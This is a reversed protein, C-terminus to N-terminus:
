EKKRKREKNGERGRKERGGKERGGTKRGEKRKRKHTYTKAQIYTHVMHRCYRLFSFTVKFIDTQRDEGQTTLDQSM